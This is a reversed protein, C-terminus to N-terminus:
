RDRSLLRSGLAALSGETLTLALLPVFRGRVNAEDLLKVVGVGAALGVAAGLGAGLLSPQTDGAQGALYTGATAGIVTGIGAVGLSKLICVTDEVDCEERAFWVIAGGAFAGATGGLAEILFAPGGSRQQVGFELADSSFTQSRAQAHATTACLLLASLLTPLRMRAKWSNHEIVRLRNADARQTGNRMAEARILQL